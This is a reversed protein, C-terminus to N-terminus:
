GRSIGDQRLVRVHHTEELVRGAPKLNLRELVLRGLGSRCGTFPPECSGFFLPSALFLPCREQPVELSLWKLSLAIAHTELEVSAVVAGSDVKHVIIWNLNGGGKRDVGKRNAM